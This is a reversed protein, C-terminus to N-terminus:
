DILDKYIKNIEEETETDVYYSYMPCEEKYFDTKILIRQKNLEELLPCPEKRNLCTMCKDFVTIELTYKKNIEDYVIKM